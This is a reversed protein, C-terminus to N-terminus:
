VLMRKKTLYRLLCVIMIMKRKLNKPSKVPTSKSDYKGDCKEPPTEISHDTQALFTTVDSM